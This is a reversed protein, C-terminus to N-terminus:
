HRTKADNLRSCTFFTVNTENTFSSGFLLGTIIFRNKYKKYKGLTSTINNDSVQIEILNLSDYKEFNQLSSIQIVDTIEYSM